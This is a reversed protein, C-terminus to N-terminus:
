VWLETAPSLTIGVILAATVPLLVARGFYLAAILALFGMLLTSVIAGVRWIAPIDSLPQADTLKIGFVSHETRRVQENMPHESPSSNWRPTRTELERILGRSLFM